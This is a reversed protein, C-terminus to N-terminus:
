VLRTIVCLTRSFYIGKFLASNFGLNLLNVLLRSYILDMSLDWKSITYIKIMFLFIYNKSVLIMPSLTALTRNLYPFVKCTFSSYTVLDYSHYFASREAITIVLFISDVIFLLIHMNKTGIKKLNKGLILTILGLFNNSLGIIFIICEIMLYKNCWM